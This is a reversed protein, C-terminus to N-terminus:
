APSSANGPPVPTGHRRYLMRAGFVGLEFFVLLPVAMFIQSLPDPPTLVGAVIFAIVIWYKRIRSYSQPSVIGAASLIWMVLPLEFVLGFALLMSIVLSIYEEVRYNAQVMSPLMKVLYQFGLPLVIYFAFAAGSVFFLSGLVVFPIVWRKEHAYLGPAVFLWVQWLVFPSAVFVGALLGLKLYAMFMEMPSLVQMQTDIAALPAVIWLFIEDAFYLCVAGSVGIAIISWLLRWRLERLHDIFSMRSAEVSEASM